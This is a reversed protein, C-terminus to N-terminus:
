LVVSAPYIKGGVDHRGPEKPRTTASPDVDSPSLAFRVASSRRPVTKDGVDSSPKKKRQLLSRTTFRPALRRTDDADRSTAARNKKTSHGPYLALYWLLVRRRVLTKKKQPLPLPLSIIVDAYRM